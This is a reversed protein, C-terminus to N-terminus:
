RDHIVVVETQPLVVGYSRYINYPHYAPLGLIQPPTTLLTGDLRRRPKPPPFDGFPGSGRGTLSRPKPPTLDRVPREYSVTAKFQHPALIAAAEAASSTVPTPCTLLLLTLICETM